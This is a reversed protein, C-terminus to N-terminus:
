RQVGVLEIEQPGSGLYLSALAVRKQATKAKDLLCSYFEDPSDIIKVNSGSVPFGPGYNQLWKWSELFTAEDFEKENDVLSNKNPKIIESEKEPHIITSHQSSSVSIPVTSM